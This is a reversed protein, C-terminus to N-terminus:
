PNPNARICMPQNLATLKHKTAHADRRITSRFTMRIGICQKMRNGVRDETSKTFAIEPNM